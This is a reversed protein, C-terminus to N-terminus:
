RVIRPVFKIQLGKDPRANEYVLLKEKEDRGFNITLGTKTIKLKSDYYNYSCSEYIESQFEKKKLAKDTKIWLIACPHDGGCPAMPDSIPSGSCVKVVLYVSGDKETTFMVKYVHPPEGPMAGNTGALVDDLDVTASKKGYVLKIKSTGRVPVLQLKSQAPSSEAVFFLAGLVFILTVLYKM